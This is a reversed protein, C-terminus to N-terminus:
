TGASSHLRNAYVYRASMVDARSRGLINDEGNGGGSSMYEAARRTKTCRGIVLPSHIRTGLSFWRLRLHNSDRLMTFLKSGQQLGHPERCTRLNPNLVAIECLVSEGLPVFALHVIVYM